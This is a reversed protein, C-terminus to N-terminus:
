DEHDHRGGDRRPELRRNRAGTVRGLAGLVVPFNAQADVARRLVREPQIHDPFAPRVGPHPRHLVIIQLADQGVDEGAPGRVLNEIELRVGLDREGPYLLRDLDRPLGSDSDYRGDGLLRAAHLWVFSVLLIAIPTELPPLRCASMLTVGIISTSSTSSMMKMIVSGRPRRAM